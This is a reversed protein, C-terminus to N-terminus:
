GSLFRSMPMDANADPDDDTKLDVNKQCYLLGKSNFNLEIYKELFRWKRCYKLSIQLIIDIFLDVIAQCWFSGWTLLYFKIESLFNSYYM